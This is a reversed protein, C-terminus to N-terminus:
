DIVILKKIVIEKNEQELQIFYVGSLLNDRHLINEQGSINNIQKVEQGMSNYVILKANSLVTNTSLTTFSSFPNPYINLISEEKIELIGLTNIITFTSSCTNGNYIAQFTYVGSTTPLVKSYGMIKSGSNTTSNYAWTLYTSGNPNLISMNATLGSIEDRIFIYFKAYGAPLSTGQFPIMYSNSENLTETAPCPPLVIDTTHVSAKIISSEKHPKQNAWWSTANLTNCTGSYPDVRTASTSGSWVEFHLHPGSSSGSSGVVGVHDGVSISGGVPKTTISGNKMHWYLTQSGDSHQIIVYNASVTTTACNRDFEGDHKALIIGPATAIVEVLDNDMKYFNFPFTAIDTGKHGDYTNTGCNYDSIASATTNQDVYASIRYYSCDHLNVSPKLPWSLLTLGRARHSMQLGLKKQNKAIEAELAQYESESICPHKADNTYADSHIENENKEHLVTQAFSNSSFFLYAIIQITTKM